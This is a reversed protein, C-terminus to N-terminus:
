GCAVLPAPRELGLCRGAAVAAVQLLVPLATPRNSEVTEAREVMLEVQVAVLAQVMRDTETPEPQVALELETQELLSTTVAEVPISRTESVM